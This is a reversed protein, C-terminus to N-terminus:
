ESVLSVVLKFEDMIAKDGISDFFKKSGYQINFDTRDITISAKASVKDGSVSIQAPFSISKTIGKITLNGTVQNGKVNTIM